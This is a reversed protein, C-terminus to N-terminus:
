CLSSLHDLVADGRQLLVGGSLGQALLRPKIQEEFMRHMESPVGPMAALVAGGHRMWVGPATGHNNPIPEAGDPFM